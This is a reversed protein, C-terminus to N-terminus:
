RSPRWRALWLSSLVVSVSSLSMAAGALAPSAWPGGFPVLVGAAVPLALANYGFAWALNRRLTARTARGLAVAEALRRIGGRLAAGAGEFAVAAGDAVAIGASASALAAADNVGDGLFAVPLGSAELTQVRAAKGEPSLRARFTAIGCARAVAEVAEPSDGSALEVELGLRRLTAVSAPAEPILPDTLLVRGQFHGGLDVSVVSAGPEAEGGEPGAWGPRGMRLVEGDLRACVGSGAEQVSETVVPLLIGREAAAEALARSLPHASGAAAAAALRLLREEPIGPAPRLGTVRPKGATLTGTKDLIAVRARALGEFVGPDRVLLGLRAARGTAVLLGSPVALGMACPCAVVLVAVAALTGRLWSSDTGSLGWALLATAALGTVFWAFGAALRDALRQLPAKRALAERVLRAVRAIQAEAAPATARLRLPSAGNVAGAPVPDGPSVARPVPEGTFASEDIAGFGEEVVADVPLREGPHVELLDGALLAAASITEVTGDPRLLRAQRPLLLGLGAVDRRARARARHELWRGLGVFGLVGSVSEFWTGGAGMSTMPGPAIVAAASLAFATGTGLAVLTDMDPAGHKLASFGRRYVGRGPGAVVVTHLVLLTWRLLDPDVQALAPFTHLLAAGGPMALVGLLGHGQHLPLSLFMAAVMAALSTFAGWPLALTEERGAEDERFPRGGYGLSVLAQVLDSETLRAPDHEVVATESALDVSCAEIGESKGLGREVRRVCAACSMGEVRLVTRM